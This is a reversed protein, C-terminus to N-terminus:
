FLNKKSLDFQHGYSIGVIVPQNLPYLTTELSFRIYDEEFLVVFEGKAITSVKLNEQKWVGDEVVPLKIYQNIGVAIGLRDNFLDTFGGSIQINGPEVSTFFREEKPLGVQYFVGGNWVVPDLIGTAEVKFGATYRGSGGSLVGERNAYENAETLPIGFRPGMFLNIHAFQKLYEYSFGPDGFSYLWPNRSEPNNYWEITYPIQVSVTHYTLFTYEGQFGMNMGYLTHENVTEMWTKVTSEFLLESKNRVLDYRQYDKEQGYLFGAGLLALLIGSLVHKM